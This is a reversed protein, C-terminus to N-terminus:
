RREEPKRAPYAWNFALFSIAFFIFAILSGEPGITGGALWRPGSLSSNLLHGTAKLGSDPVSFIFTEAYDTAAHLGIIFWLNGTRRLTFCGFLGFLFVSLAGVWGEGPNFLHTAGFLGSLFLAAPWFGMRSALTFQAYGRFFFEEFLGVLVFGIAWLLAFKALAAGALAFTGFTFGGLLAIAGMELTEFALGWVVGQWFLKGFAGSLPIGYQGFPRKEIRSMIAGALFAIILMVSEFILEYQPTLVGGTRTQKAIAALAPILRLGREVIVFEFAGFLLFFLAIRWGVHIGNRGIFARRLRSPKPAAPAAPAPSATSELTVPDTTM